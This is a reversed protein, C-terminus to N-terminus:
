YITQRLLINDTSTWNCFSNTNFVDFRALRGILHYLHRFVILINRTVDPESGVTVFKVLYHNMFNVPTIICFYISFEFIKIRSGGRQCKPNDKGPVSLMPFPEGPKITRM